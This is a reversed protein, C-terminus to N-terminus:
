KKHTNIKLIQIMKINTNNNHTLINKMSMNKMSIKKMPIIKMSINLKLVYM